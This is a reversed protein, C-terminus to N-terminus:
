RSNAAGVVRVSDVRIGLLSRRRFDGGGIGVGISVADEVHEDQARTAREAGRSCCKVWSRDGGFQLPNEGVVFGDLDRHVHHGLVDVQALVDERAVALAPLLVLPGVVAVREHLVEEPRVPLGRAEGVEGTLALGIPVLDDDGPVGVDERRHRPVVCQSRALDRGQGEFPASLRPQEHGPWLVFRGCGDLVERLEHGSGGVPGWDRQGHYRYGEGPVGEVGVQFVACGNVGRRVAGVERGSGDVGLEVAPARSQGGVVVVVGQGFAGSSCHGVLCALDVVRALPGEDRRKVPSVDVVAYQVVVM